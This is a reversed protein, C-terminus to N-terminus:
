RDRPAWAFAFVQTWDDLITARISGEHGKLLVRYRRLIRDLTRLASRLDSLSPAPFTMGRVDDHAVFRDVWQELRVFRPQRLARLDRAAVDPRIRNRAAGRSGSYRNFLRRGVERTLPSAGAYLGLFHERSVLGPHKRVLRLFRTLSICDEDVKLQRRVASAAALTFWEFLTQQFRGPAGRLAANASFMRNVEEFVADYAMAQQIDAVIRDLWAILQRRTV